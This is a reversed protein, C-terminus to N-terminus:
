HAVQALCQLRPTTCCLQVELPASSSRTRQMVLPAPAAPSPAAAPAPMAQQGLQGPLFGGLLSALSTLGPGFGQGPPMGGQMGAPLQGALQGQPFHAGPPIALPFPGSPHALRAQATPDSAAATPRPVVYSPAGGGADAHQADPQPGQLHPQTAGQESPGARRPQGDTSSQPLAGSGRLTDGSQDRPTQQPPAQQQLALPGAAFHPYQQAMQPPLAGGFGPAQALAGPPMAGYPGLNQLYQQLGPMAQPHVGHQTAMGFASGFGQLGLGSQQGAALLSQYSQPGGGGLGLGFWPNPLAADGPNGQHPRAQGPLAVGEDLRVAVSRGNALTRQRLDSLGSPAQGADICIAAFGMLM